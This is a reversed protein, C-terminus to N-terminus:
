RGRWPVQVPHARAGTRGQPQPKVAALQTQQLQATGLSSMCILARRGLVDSVGGLCKCPTPMAVGTRGQPQPLAEGAAVKATGLPSRCM